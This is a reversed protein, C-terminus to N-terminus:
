ADWGSVVRHLLLCLYNREKADKKKKLNLLCSNVSTLPVEPFIASCYGASFAADRLTVTSVSSYLETLFVLLFSPPGRPGPLIQFALQLGCLFYFPFSLCLLLYYSAVGEGQALSM